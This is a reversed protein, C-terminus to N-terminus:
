SVFCGVRDDTFFSFPVCLRCFLCSFPIRQRVQKCLQDYVAETQTYWERAVTCEYEAAQWYAHADKIWANEIRAILQHREELSIRPESMGRKGRKRSLSDRERARSGTIGMAILHPLKLHLNEMMSITTALRHLIQLLCTYYLVQLLTQLIFESCRCRFLIFNAALARRTRTKSLRCNTAAIRQGVVRAKRFDEKWTSFASFVMRNTWNLIATGWMRYARRMKRSWQLLGEFAAASTRHTWHRLVRAVINDGRLKTQKAQDRWAEFAASLHMNLMHRFVM